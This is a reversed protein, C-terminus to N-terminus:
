MMACRRARAEQAAADGDGTRRRKRPPEEIKVDAPPEGYASVTLDSSEPGLGLTSGLQSQLTCRAAGEDLAGGQSTGDLFVLFCAGEDIWHIRVRGLRLQTTARWLDKNKIGRHLGSVRVVHSRVLPPDPGALSAYPMDTRMLAARNAQARLPELSLPAPPRPARTDDDAAAAAHSLWLIHAFCTGTLFADYGAEHPYSAARYRNFGVAHRITQTPPVAPPERGAAEGQAALQQLYRAVGPHSDGEERELVGYVAGLATGDPFVFGPLQAALYKTDYIGGRFFAAVSARFDPWELPLAGVFSEMTYALDLMMNHGVLPLGCRGVMELVRSFGVAEEAERARRGAEAAQRAAKEEASAKMVLLNVGGPAKEVHLGHGERQLDGVEQYAVRRFYSNPTALEASAMEGALLTRLSARLDAVFERDRESTIALRGWSTAAPPSPPPAAAAVRPALDLPLSTIGKGFCRDFSFGHQMLFDVSSAQCLFRRDYQAERCPRPFTHFNFTHAAYAGDEWHFVSLGVQTVLFNRAADRVRSYRESMTDLESDRGGAGTSLGTFELDLAVFRAAPSQLCASVTPLVAQFNDRTVEM